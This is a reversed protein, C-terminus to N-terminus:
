KRRTSMRIRDRARMLAWGLVNTGSWAWPREADVDGLSVGTGWNKDRNTSEAIISDGTELLLPTLQRVKSFKQFVAEEAVMVVVRDWVEPDFNSVQRGLKKCDRPNFTHLLRDYIDYDRFVAAKCLMIAKETFEIGDVPKSFVRDGGHCCEPLM